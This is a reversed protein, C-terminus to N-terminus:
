YTAGNTGPEWGYVARAREPSIKGERVDNAVAEPARQASDGWGGGGALTLRVLDGAQIAFVAKSHLQTPAQGPRELV